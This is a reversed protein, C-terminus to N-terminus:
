NNDRELSLRSYINADEIQYILLYRTLLLKSIEPLNNGSIMIIFKPPNKTLIDSVERNSAYDHVHYPVTYKLPPLRRSLAYVTPSNPDWMFVRDTTSSAKSLFDAIVYDRNTTKSFDSFYEQKNIKHTAFNIFRQYYSATPYFYFKYYVPVFFILALPIITLSQEFDKNTFLTALLLSLPAVVQILYHPYPRESLTVAFLAFLTWICFFIFRNSLKKKSLFVVTVGIMVILGRVLLPANKTLFSKQVDDPRFSSVYGVNQLFAAKIYEPLVGKFFYWVFTLLIPTAFGAVLIISNTAIAKWGKKLDTTILWYFVIVPLEFLAPIKFLAAIGFLIGAMFISKPKLEKGLLFLFALITPGIMFLEANAINGELLPITTLIAFLLTSIKIAKINKGQGDSAKPSPPDFLVVSLKYFLAVTLLSWFTLIAKFWFLNESIAATLYLLPPKNDHLDKYLTMGQRVGQGLTMYIMEDGYYYPEFFSPIRLILVLALIGIVWNPLHIRHIWHTKEM